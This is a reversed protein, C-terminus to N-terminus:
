LVTSCYPCKKWRPKTPKGCKPCRLESRKSVTIAEGCYPCRIWTAGVPKGCSLCTGSTSEDVTSRDAGCYPCMQWDDQQEEGCELCNEITRRSPPDAEDQINRSSALVIPLIFSSLYSVLLLLSDAAPLFRRDYEYSYDFSGFATIIVIVLVLGSMVPVISSVLRKSQDHHRMSAGLLFGLALSAGALIQGINSGLPM